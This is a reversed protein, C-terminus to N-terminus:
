RKKKKKEYHLDIPTDDVHVDERHFVSSNAEQSFSPESNNNIAHYFEDM